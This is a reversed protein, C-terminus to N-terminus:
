KTKNESIRLKAASTHHNIPLCYILNHIGRIDHVHHTLENVQALRPNVVLTQARKM